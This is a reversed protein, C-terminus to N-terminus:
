HNRKNKTINPKGYTINFLILLFTYFYPERDDDHMGNWEMGHWHSSNKKLLRTWYFFSPVNECIMKCSSRVVFLFYKVSNIHHGLM